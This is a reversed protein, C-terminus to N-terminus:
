PSQSLNEYTKFAAELRFCRVGLLIVGFPLAMRRTYIMSRNQQLGRADPESRNCEYRRQGTRAAQQRDIRESGAM